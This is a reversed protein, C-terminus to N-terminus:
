LLDFLANAGESRGEEEPYSQILSAPESRAEKM